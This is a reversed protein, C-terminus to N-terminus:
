RIIKVGRERLANAILKAERIRARGKLHTPVYHLIDRWFVEDDHLRAFELLTEIISQRILAMEDKHGPIWATLPRQPNGPARRGVYEEIFDRIIESASFGDRHCIELFEEWTPKFWEPIYIKVERSKVGCM